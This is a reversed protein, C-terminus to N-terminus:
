ARGAATTPETAGAAARLRLEAHLAEQWPRLRGITPLPTPELVGWDPPQSPRPWTSLPVDETAVDIGLEALVARGWEARSARGANVVHHIGASAPHGVLDLIADALDGCATPNGVEDAVLKLAQGAARAARAARAIKDPFDNGPPGYLWATRAIWLPAAVGDFAAAALEEGLRKSRGYPNSPATADAPTYGRGDTRRGDFVENTSVALLGIGQAACATALAGTARGNRREAVEPERACGDVDTWAACHVVVDPRDRDLAAALGDASPEDLDLEARTWGVATWGSAPSGGAAAARLVARGLRGTWGTVAIRM